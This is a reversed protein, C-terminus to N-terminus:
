KRQPFASRNFAAPDFPDDPNLKGADGVKPATGFSENPQIPVKAPEEVKVLAIPSAQIPAPDPRKVIPSQPISTPMAAGERLTAWYAWVELYKYAPHAKSYLPADKHKGHAAVAKTLLPSAGPDARDLQKVAALLNREIGPANAYGDDLRKLKFAGAHDNRGHCGACANMLIPHVKTAFIKASESNYAPAVEEPAFAVAPVIAGPAETRTTHAQLQAISSMPRRDLPQAFAWPAALLAVALALLTQKM